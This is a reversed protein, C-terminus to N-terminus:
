PHKKEERVEEQSSGAGQVAPQGQEQQPLACAPGGAGGAPHLGRQIGGKEAQVQPSRHGPGSRLKRTM